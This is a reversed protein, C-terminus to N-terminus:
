AGPVGAIEPGAFWGGYCLAHVSQRPDNDLSIIRYTERYVLHGPRHEDLESNPARKAAAVSLGTGRCDGGRDLGLIFRSRATHRKYSSLLM